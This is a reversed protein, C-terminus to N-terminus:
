AGNGEEGEEIFLPEAEESTWLKLEVKNDDNLYFMGIIPKIVILFPENLRIGTRGETLIKFDGEFVIRLFDTPEITFKNLKHTPLGLSRHHKLRVMFDQISESENVIKIFEPDNLYPAITWYSAGEKIFQYMKDPNIGRSELSQRKFKLMKSVSVPKINLLEAIDSNTLKDDLTLAIQLKEWASLTSPDRKLNCNDDILEEIGQKEIPVEVEIVKTKTKRKPM